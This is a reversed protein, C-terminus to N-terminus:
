DRMQRINLNIRKKSMWNRWPEYPDSVDYQVSNANERAPWCRLWHPCTDPIIQPVGHWAFRASGSMYVADGSHLRLVLSRPNGEDASYLGVVFIADCGLSISVLGRDSEESVDRHMSLTDGPTYVNVIAAEAKMSPFFDHTFDALDAPFTPNKLPYKKQTWDYQGGLTVWRLKRNLCHSITFPKHARADLPVFPEPSKPPMNFFSVQPPEVESGLSVPASPRTAHYPILHHLQVNNHHRHDALDRHLLRSLLEVQSNNPLLSPIV